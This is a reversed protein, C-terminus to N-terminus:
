TIFDCEPEILTTWGIRFHHKQGDLCGNDMTNQCLQECNLEKIMMLPRVRAPLKGNAWSSSSRMRTM